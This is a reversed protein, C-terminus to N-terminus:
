STRKAFHRPAMERPKNPWTILIATGESKASQITFTGGSFIVREKMGVIGMCDSAIATKHNLSANDFGQGDDRISFLITQDKKTLTIIVHGAHSHKTVNNLAEQLVRYIVIKTSEPIDEEEIDINREIHLTSYIELYRRCFWNITMVIGLDDLIKPRLDSYIRRTENITNKVVRIISELATKDAETKASTHLYKEIGFKIAALNSGISDHLETAIRKRESEQADLLKESLFRQQQQARRLKELNKSREISYRISRELLHASLYAKELYDSAGEKMVRLDTEYDSQGTLIIFPKHPRHQKVTELLELGTYGRLHFDVIYIDHADHEIAQLAQDFGDLWTLQIRYHSIESITDKFLIYDDEDDEILLIRISQKVIRAERPTQKFRTM